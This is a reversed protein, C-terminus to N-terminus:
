GKGFLRGWFSPAVLDRSGWGQPLLLLFQRRSHYTKTEGPWDRAHGLLQQQGAFWDRNDLRCTADISRDAMRMAFCELWHPRAKLRKARLPDTLLSLYTETSPAADGEFEGRVVVPGVVVDFPPSTAAADCSTTRVLCSHDGGRWQALVPLVGLCWQAVADRVAAPPDDAFGVCTISIAPGGAPAQADFFAIFIGSQGVMGAQLPRVRIHLGLKELLALEPGILRAEHEPAGKVLTELAATALSMSFGGDPGLARDYM